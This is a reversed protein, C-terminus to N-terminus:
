CSNHIWSRLEDDENLRKIIVAALGRPWDRARELKRLERAPVKGEYREWVPLAMKFMCIVLLDFGSPERRIAMRSHRAIGNMLHEGKWGELLDAWREKADAQKRDYIASARLAQAVRKVPEHEYRLSIGARLLQEHIERHHM